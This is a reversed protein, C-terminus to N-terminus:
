ALGKDEALWTPIVLKGKQGKKWVESDDHIQSQPLWAEKGDESRVLLGKATQQLATCEITVNDDDDSM